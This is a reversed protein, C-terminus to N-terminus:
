FVTFCLALYRLSFTFSDLWKCM